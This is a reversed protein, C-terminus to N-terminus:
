FYLFFILILLTLDGHIQIYKRLTDLAKSMQVKVTNISIGLENSIENYSKGETRSLIFIEKRKAPLSEIAKIRIIELEEDLLIQDSPKGLGSNMYFIEETLKRNNLASRLSNLSLNRAITFIYSKFDLDPNLESAKLWVKLFVEQVIEEALSDLKLISKSFIFIDQHYKDFLCRFARESGSALQEVLIKDSIQSNM